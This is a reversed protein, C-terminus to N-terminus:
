NATRVGRGGADDDRSTKATIGDSRDSIRLRLAAVNWAGGRLSAGAAATVGITSYVDSLENNQVNGNIGPWHDENADGEATLNGDGHQGTYSRGAPNEATVVQEYLNGAMEMVGYYAAGTEQRSHNISSAAFIGCRLMGYNITEQYTAMGTNEQPNGISEDPFNINQLSSSPINVDSINTNGWVFEGAFSQNPGRCIKEFELETAPRLGSWDMYASVDMWNLYNCPLNQGDDIQNSPPSSANNYVTVPSPSPPLDLPAMIGNRTNTGTQVLEADAMIYFNYNAPTLGSIDTETRTNQQVRTLTNLFDVYQEQSIEYKMCYIAQFGKPYETGLQPLIDPFDFGNMAYLQDPAGGSLPILDESTVLYPVAPDDSQYFRNTSAGDGLYYSGEPIFVMEIAYVRVEVSADDPVGDIGYNWQLRADTWSITGNGDASRYIFAGVGDSSVDITSGSPAVQGTTNLTAHAWDGGAISFKAFVWAADWNNPVSSTRWSNEWSIDFEIFTYHATADQNELSINAVQINNAQM